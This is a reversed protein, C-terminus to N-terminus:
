TEVKIIHEEIEFAVLTCKTGIVLKGLADGFGAIATNVLLLTLTLLFIYKM